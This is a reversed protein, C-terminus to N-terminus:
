KNNISMLGVQLPYQVQGPTEEHSRMHSRYGALSLCMRGCIECKVSGAAEKPAAMLEKKRVSRKYQAHKIRNREFLDVGEHIAKRWKQRDAALEEWSQVPIECKKLDVKLLDKYRQKPKSAKRKGM